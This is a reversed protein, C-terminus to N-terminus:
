MPELKVKGVIFKAVDLHVFKYKHSEGVSAFYCDCAASVVYNHETWERWEM